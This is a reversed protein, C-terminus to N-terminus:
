MNRLPVAINAVSPRNAIAPYGLVAQFLRKLIEYTQTVIKIQLAYM